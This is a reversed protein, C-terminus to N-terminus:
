KSWVLEDWPRGRVRVVLGVTVRVAAAAGAEGSWIM